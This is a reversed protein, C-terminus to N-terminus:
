RSRVTRRKRMGRRGKMVLSQLQEGALLCVCVTVVLHTGGGFVSERMSCLHNTTEKGGETAMVIGAAEGQNTLSNPSARHM